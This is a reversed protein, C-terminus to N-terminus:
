YCFTEGFKHKVIVFVLLSNTARKVNCRFRAEAPELKYINQNKIVTYFEEPVLTRTGSQLAFKKQFSIIIGTESIRRM